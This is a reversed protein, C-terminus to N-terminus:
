QKPPKIDTYRRLESLANSCVDRLDWAVCNQFNVILIKLHYPDLPFDECHLVLTNNDYIDIILPESLHYYDCEFEETDDIIDNICVSPKNKVVASFKPFIKLRNVLCYDKIAREIEFTHM